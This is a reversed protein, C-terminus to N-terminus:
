ASRQQLLRVGENRINIAANVDRDHAAGCCPCVWSRDELTLGENVYGCASCTKSSPYWRDIRAVAKGRKLAVWELIRVFESYSLDSIKQGWLRKMGEINLDEVCIVDYEDFLRNVLQFFYSTRSNDIREYM